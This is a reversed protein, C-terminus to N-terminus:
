VFLHNDEDHETHFMLSTRTPEYKATVYAELLELTSIDREAKSHLRAYEFKAQDSLAECCESISLRIMHSVVTM